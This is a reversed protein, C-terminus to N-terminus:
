ASVIEPAGKGLTAFAAMVAGVDGDESAWDVRYLAEGCRVFTAPTQTDHVAPPMSLGAHAIGAADLAAAADLMDQSARLRPM